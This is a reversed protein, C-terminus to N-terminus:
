KFIREIEYGGGLLNPSDALEYFHVEEKPTKYKIKDGAVDFDKDAEAVTEMKPTLKFRVEDWKKFEFSPEFSSATENGIKIDTKEANDAKINKHFSAGQMEYKGAMQSADFKNKVAEKSIKNTDGTGVAYTMM